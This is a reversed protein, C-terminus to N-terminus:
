VHRRSLWACFGYIKNSPSFDASPTHIQKFFFTLPAFFVLFSLLRFFFPFYCSQLVVLYFVFLLLVFQIVFHRCNLCSSYNSLPFQNCLQKSLSLFLVSNLIWKYKTWSLVPHIFRNRSTCKSGFGISFYQLIQLFLNMPMIQKMSLNRRKQAQEICSM